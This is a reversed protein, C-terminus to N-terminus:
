GGSRGQRKGHSHYVDSRHSVTVIPITRTSEDILYIVRYDSRVAKRQPALPPHLEVGVRHPNSRLSGTIFAWAATAVKEPLTKSLDRKARHTYELSYAPDEDDATV